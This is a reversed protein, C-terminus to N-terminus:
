GCPDWSCNMYEQLIGGEKISGCEAQPIFYTLEGDRYGALWLADEPLFFGLPRDQGVVAFQYHIYREVGDWDKNTAEIIEIASLTAGTTVTDGCSLNKIRNTPPRLTTYAMLWHYYSLGRPALEKSCLDLVEQPVGVEYMCLYQLKSLYQGFEEDGPKSIFTAPGEYTWNDWAEEVVEDQSIKGNTKYTDSHVVDPQPLTERRGFLYWGLFIGFILAVVFVSMVSIARKM